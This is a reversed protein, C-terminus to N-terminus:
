LSNFFLAEDQKKVFLYVILLFLLRGSILLAKLSITGFDVEEDTGSILLIVSVVIFTVM